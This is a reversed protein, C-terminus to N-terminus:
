PLARLIDHYLRLRQRVLDVETQIRSRQPVRVLEAFRHVLQQMPDPVQVRRGRGDFSFSHDDAVCRDMRIGDIEIWAPRPPAPCLHLHLAAEIGGRPGGLAFRLTSARGDLEPHDLGVRCVTTDADVPVLAQLVSLLHSLMSQVMERGPRAPALGLAIRCPLQGPPNGWLTRLVPLVFPWQCNEMLPLDAAAFAEVVAAGAEGQTEHVLPKECLVPVRATVAAELAELHHVTPSAIVLGDIGSGCLSDLGRCAAVPHGLRTAFEAADDATREPSRGAVATVRFGAREACTALFPGPGNRTRGAGVIGVSLLTM